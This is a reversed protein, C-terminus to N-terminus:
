RRARCIKGNRAPVTNGAASTPVPFFAPLMEQKHPWGLEVLTPSPRPARTPSLKCQPTGGGGKLGLLSDATQRCSSGGGARQGGGGRRLNGDVRYHGPPPLAPRRWRGGLRASRGLHAPQLRGNGGGARGGGAVQVARRPLHVKGIQCFRLPQLESAGGGGQLGVRHKPVHSAGAPGSHLGRSLEQHMLTHTLTHTHSHIHSHTQSRTLTHTHHTSTHPTHTHTRTHSHSHTDRQSAGYRSSHTVCWRCM